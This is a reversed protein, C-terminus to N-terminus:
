VCVDSHTTENILECVIVLEREDRCNYDISGGHAPKHAM